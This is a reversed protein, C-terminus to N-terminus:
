LFMDQYNQELNLQLEGLLQHETPQFMARYVRMQEFYLNKIHGKLLMSDLESEIKLSPKVKPMWLSIHSINFKGAAVGNAKM